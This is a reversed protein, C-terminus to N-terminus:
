AKSRKCLPHINHKMSNSTLNRIFDSLKKRKEAINKTEFRHTAANWEGLAAHFACDGFGKTPAVRM